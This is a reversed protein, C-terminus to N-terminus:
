SMKEAGNPIKIGTTLKLSLKPAVSALAPELVRERTLSAGPCGACTGSLHLHVEDADVNVVYLEGGDARVLPGLVERCLKM